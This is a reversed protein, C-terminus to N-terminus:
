RAVPSSPELVLQVMQEGYRHCGRLEFRHRQSIGTFLPHGAGLAVPVQTLILQDVLGADLAQRVLTGGDLYVDKGNALKKAQVVMEHITGRTPRVEPVAPELPRNTAVLVPRQGYPWPGAFGTVVDYTTRGMLLAGIDAIFAEFTVASTAPSAAPGTDANPLWSLDNNPGAIFGDLSCALYVRTRSM